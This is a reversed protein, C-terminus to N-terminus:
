DALEAGVVPERVTAAQKATRGPAFLCATAGALAVAIPILLVPRMADVFGHTFALRGLAHLQAAVAPPTGHPITVTAGTQGAGVNVGNRGAQTFDHVFQARYAQPLQRALSQARAPLKVSLESQLLVGVSVSGIVLGLQRITNMVGSAAGSMSPIVNRMATGSMPAYTGGVGIGALIMGPIFDAQSTRPGAALLIWILGAAFLLQAGLVIYKGGFRDTARGSVPAVVISALALPALTLGTRMASFHLASQFYIIVPLFFGIMGIAIAAGVGNMSSYDPDRFLAFPLLPERQQRLAQQVFFALFLAAGGGIALWVSVFGTITGWDYHQGEILGYSIGLLALSVLAVGPLDLAHQTRAQTDPLIALAMVLTILGIPLNIFFIWRWSFSTILLGGVLPGALSAIGAIAGWVGFAVGRRQAPFVHTLITQTQPMLMAAGLGQAVRAAILESATQSLGCAASALTFLVLGIIFLRKTGTIDGLRGFSILLVALVLMYGNLVWLVADLPAHLSVIMKPIAISVITLDLLTTFFGLCVTILVAWPNGQWRRM